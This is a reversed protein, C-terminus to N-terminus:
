SAKLLIIKSTLTKVAHILVFIQHGQTFAEAICEHKDGNMDTLALQHKGSYKRGGIPIMAGIVDDPTFTQRWQIQGFLEVFCRSEIHRRLTARFGDGEVLEPMNVVLVACAKSNKSVYQRVASYISAGYDKSMRVPTWISFERAEADQIFRDLQFLVESAFVGAERDFLAAIDSDLAHECDEVLAYMGRQWPLYGHAAEHLRIFTKRVKLLTHQIFILGSKAHFLGLVKSIASKIVGGATARMRALFGEDLVNDKAEEVNAVALIREVPTPLIGLAGAERLAREAEARIKLRQGVTLTCDDPKVLM